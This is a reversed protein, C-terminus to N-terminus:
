VYKNVRRKDNNVFFLLWYPFEPEPPEPGGGSTPDVFVVFAVYNWADPDYTSKHVGGGPVSASDRGGSQMVENNGCYIGVHAFNGIGDGEYQSPIPPPGADSIKHFLLAGAPIEGYTAVCNAITGKYWLEPCPNVGEPSTTNFVRTSRWLSNTGSTLSWGVAPIDQWVKNVFGICDYQDYPMYQGNYALALSAFETGTIWGEPLPPQPEVGSLYEYWYRANSKRNDVVSYTAEYHLMWYYALNEPTDTSAAYEAFTMRHHQSTQTEEVKWKAASEYEWHLREMQIAGEYWESGHRYAYSVLQNAIPETSGLGKWQVLGYAPDTRSLANANAIDSLSAGGNPFSSKPYVCAPNLWSEVQMNGIMGAIANLTWINAFSNYVNEANTKQYDSAGGSTPGIDSSTASIWWGNSNTASM